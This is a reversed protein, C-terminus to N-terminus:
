LKRVNRFDALRTQEDVADLGYGVAMQKDNESRLDEAAMEALKDAAAQGQVIAETIDQRSPTRGLIRELGAVAWGAAYNGYRFHEESLANRLGKATAIAGSDVRDLIEDMKRAPVYMGCADIWHGCGAPDPEYGAALMAGLYKQQALRYLKLGRRLMSPKIRLRQYMMVEAEVSKETLQKSVAIAAAIREAIFPNCEEFNIIDASWGDRRDRMPWKAFDRAAGYSALNAGPLLWSQGDQEILLSFPFDQTDPHNKHRGIVTTFAGDLAPLMTYAGSGYKCGRQHVGQHVPGSKLLHNSFNTGSGANFFSFLGAILLTSKHHSITYPGALVSSVEGNECNSGAFFLSDTATLASVHTGNGFFCRDAVTGNDVTSNGCVIFDRLKVDTGIYTHQGKHSAITGNELRSAGEILADEGVTVNRLIGCSRIRSGRGIKCAAAVPYEDQALRVIKEITEPRHRYMAIIYASQATLGAFLPVERGGSENIVAARVGNGFAAGEEAEMIATNEIVAGEGIEYGALVGINALSVKGAIRINGRFGCNRIASTDFDGTVEIADWDEAYCNHQALVRREECTLKRYENMARIQKIATFKCLYKNPQM